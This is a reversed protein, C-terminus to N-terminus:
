EENKEGRNYMSNVLDDSTKQEEKNLKENYSSLSREKMIEIVKKDRAASLLEGRKVELQRKVENIIREQETIHRKLGEIYLYYMNLEHIEAGGEKLTDISQGSSHYLGKLQKLRQEEENLRHSAEGFEKQSLEELRQRYGYLPELNFVFKGM